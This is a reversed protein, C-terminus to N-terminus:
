SAGQDAESEEGSNDGSNLAKLEAAGKDDRPLSSEGVIEGQAQLENFKRGMMFAVLLLVGNVAISWRNGQLLLADMSYRLSDTIVSGFAKACRAGFVDSWSKSKFKITDSTAFYLMEVSPKNLAYSLGKVTVLAFFFVDLSPYVMVYSLVAMLMTPFLMLTSSLGLRRIVMSTGVLSFVLSVSNTAQGFFGMFRAFDEASSYQPQKKAIVKMEFDLVTVVVEFLCTIMFIGLVYPHKFLLYLGEVLGTAGKDPKAGGSNVGRGVGYLSVYRKMLLWVLGVILGGFVYLNAVGLYNSMVVLTPGLIAGIQAGAIILGYSAKAHELSVSSNVFSWFLSVFISGFSEIACYSVWGILRTPDAQDNSLGIVPMHLLIGIALFLGGYTISLIYFLVHKEVTDILRNYVFLLVFVVCLSVMKARPQYEIGVTTALVTDKLSRLLWYVGIICFLMASLM